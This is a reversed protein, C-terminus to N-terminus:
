EKKNRQGMYEIFNWGTMMIKDKSTMAPNKKIFEKYYYGECEVTKQYYLVMDTFKSKSFFGYGPVEIPIKDALLTYCLIYNRLNFNDEGIDNSDFIYKQNQGDKFILTVTLMEGGTSISKTIKHTQCFQFSDVRVILDTPLDFNLKYNNAQTKLTTIDLGLDSQTFTRKNQRKWETIKEIRDKDIAIKDNLKKRKGEEYFDSTSLEDGALRKFEFSYKPQGQKTPPEDAQQSTFIIKEIEQGVSPFTLITLVILLTYKM